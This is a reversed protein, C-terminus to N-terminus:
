TKAAFKASCKSCTINVKGKGRPVRLKQKCEPCKFFKYKKNEERRHRTNKFGNKVSYTFRAFKVNEAQRKAIQKSFMRYIAVGLPIWALLNVYPVPVFMLAVSLIISLVILFLGLQDAGYRGMMFRRFRNMGM